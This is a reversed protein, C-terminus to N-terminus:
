TQIKNKKKKQPKKIKLSVVKRLSIKNLSVGKISISEKRMCHIRIVTEEGEAGRLQERDVRGELDAGKREKMLFSYVELLYCGLM